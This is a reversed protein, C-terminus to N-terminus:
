YILFYRYLDVPVTKGTPSAHLLIEILQAKAPASEALIRRVRRNPKLKSSNTTVRATMIIAVAMATGRTAFAM